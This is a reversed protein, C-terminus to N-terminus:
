ERRTKICFGFTLNWSMEFLDTALGDRFVAIRTGGTIVAIMNICLIGGLAVVSAM